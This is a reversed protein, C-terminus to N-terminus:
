CVIERQFSSLLASLARAQNIASCYKPFKVQFLFFTKRFNKMLAAKM